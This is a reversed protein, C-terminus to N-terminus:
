LEGVLIGYRNISSTSCLDCIKLLHLGDEDGKLISCFSVNVSRQTPSFAYRVVCLALSTVFM